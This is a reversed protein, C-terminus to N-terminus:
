RKLALVAAAGLSAMLMWLALVSLSPIQLSVSLQTAASCSGACSGGAPPTVVVTHIITGIATEALTATITFTLSGGAPFAVVLEDIPGSAGARPCVAGASATCTWRYGTLGLPVAADVNTGGADASGGNAVVVSFTVPQGPSASVQAASANVAVVAAAPITVSDSCSGVCTGGAAPTVTATNTVTAPPTATAVAQITWTVSSGVPFAALTENLASSGSAAPCAAGGSAACTWTQSAIGSPLPDTVVSNPAAVSGNNTVTVTFNLNGNPTVRTTTSSKQIGVVPAASIVVTASCSTGCTGGPPPAITATNTLPAPPTATAVAQIMWTVSSGAPFIALTENLAGSGSAAPCAAGGSAACTWTQSAIGTPLPDTVVSNPAAVSGNNSATITFNVNGNPTVLTTTSSKQLGVIAGAPLPASSSCPPTSADSCIGGAPPTISATNTVIVPPTASVTATILYQVSAGAPFTALTENLAGSGSPSPCAAGGSPTCSWTFSTLGTPIPDSVVSNSAAVTGSNTAVVTYSVSGGPQAGTSSTSKAIGTQFPALADSDSGSVLPANDATAGASNVLPDATMSPAFAVPLTYTLSHGAGTALTAGAAGLSSGGAVGTITGCTATGVAVCTPVATLTVGPPLTDSVSLNTAAALGSNTVVITYMAGTGPTYISSGDSKSIALTPTCLPSIAVIASNNANGVPPPTTFGADASTGEELPASAAIMAANTVGSCQAAGVAAVISYTISGGAAANGAPLQALGSVPGSGSVTGNVAGAPCSAGGTATCTWSTFTVGAPVADGVSVAADHATLPAVTPAATANTFTVTYTVNSGPAPTADSVIKAAALEVDNDVITTASQDSPSPSCSATTARDWLAIGSSGNVGPVELALVFTENNEIITDNTTSIPIRVSGSPTTGTTGSTDSAINADYAGQPIFLLSGGAGNSSFSATGVVSQGFAVPTGLTFDAAAASGGPQLSVSIGGAPVTGNVRLLLFGSTGETLQLTATAFDVFPKLTITVDAIYNGTAGTGPQIAEFGVQYLGAVPPATVTGSQPMMTQTTVVSSNATAGVGAPTGPYLFNDLFIGFRAQSNASPTSNPDGLSYSFPIVENAALCVRQFLRGPFEANLEASGNPVNLGELNSGIGVQTPAKIHGNQIFPNRANGDYPDTTIWGVMCGQNDIPTGTPTLCRADGLYRLCSGASTCFSNPVTATYNPLPGGGFQPRQFRQVFTPNVIVRQQAHAASVIFLVAVLFHAVVLAACKSAYRMSTM